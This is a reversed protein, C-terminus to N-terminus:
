QLSDKTTKASGHTKFKYGWLFQSCTDLYLGATHYGGKGPPLSLYDGVLLEFPHRRTIPNLLANLNMSGFNKCRACDTIATVISEDLKPSHIKDLLAIKISDRHWHGQTEHEIRALERAEPCTVCERKARGRVKAGGGIRWLKGDEILYQSARHRAKKRNWLTKGQDLELIAEVVELFIPEDKFRERLANDRESLSVQFIDHTLGKAAEWDPSVTWESGDGYLKPQGENMRSIGDAVVNIRGPLHRVDVINHATVGDRWRAHTANIKDNLLV